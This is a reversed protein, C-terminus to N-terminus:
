SVIMQLSDQYIPLKVEVTTGYHLKSDIRICGKHNLVIEKCLNLGLGTGREGNTGSNLKPMSLINELDEQKIGIGNDVVTIIALEDLQYANITIRGHQNTFKIANNILNRFIIRLQQDDGFINLDNTINNELEIEKQILAEKYLAVTETIIPILKTETFNPKINKMQTFSWNLLNDLMLQLNDLNEQIKKSLIRFKEQSINKDEYLQLIGFLSTIPNRLDHAIISFLRDKINNASQLELTQQEIIEKQKQLKINNETLTFFDSRYFYGMILAIAYATIVVTLDDNIEPYTMSTSRYRINKFSFLVIINLCVGLVRITNNFFLFSIVTFPILVNELNGRVHDTQLNFYLMISLIVISPFYIFYTALEVLGKKILYFTPLCCILIYLVNLFPIENINFLGLIVFFVNIVTVVWLTIKIVLLQRNLFPNDDVNTQKTTFNM